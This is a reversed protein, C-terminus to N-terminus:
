ALNSKKRPVTDKNQLVINTGLIFGVLRYLMQYLLCTSLLCSAQSWVSLSGAEQTRPSLWWCHTYVACKGWIVPEVSQAGLNSRSCNSPLCAKFTEWKCFFLFYFGKLIVTRYECSSKWKKGILLLFVVQFIMLSLTYIFCWMGVAIAAINKEEM